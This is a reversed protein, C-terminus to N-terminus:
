MDEKHWKKREAFFKGYGPKGHRDPLPLYPARRSRPLDGPLGRRKFKM